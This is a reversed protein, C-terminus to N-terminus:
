LVRIKDTRRNSVDRGSMVFPPHMVAAFMGQSWTVAAISLM